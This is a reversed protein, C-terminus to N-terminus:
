RISKELEKAEASMAEELKLLRELTVQPEEYFEEDQEIQRYRSASLDYKNAAVQEKTVWFQRTLQNIEAQLPAIEDHLKDLRQQMTQLPNLGLPNEFGKPDVVSEFTLRNIEKELRLREQKLPEAM